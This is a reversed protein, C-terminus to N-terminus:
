RRIEPAGAQGYGQNGHSNNNYFTGPGTYMPPQQATHSGHKAGEYGNLETANEGLQSPAAFHSTQQGPWQRQQSYGYNTGTYASNAPASYNYYTRTTYYSRGFMGWGYKCRLWCSIISILLLVVAIVITAVLPGTNVTGDSNYYVWRKSLAYTNSLLTETSRYSLSQIIANRLPAM